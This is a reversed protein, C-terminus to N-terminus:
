RDRRERQIGTQIKLAFCGYKTAFDGLCQLRPHKVNFCWVAILGLDRFKVGTDRVNVERLNKGFVAERALVANAVGILQCGTQNAAGNLGIPLFTHAKGDSLPNTKTLRQHDIARIIIRGGDDTVLGDVRLM